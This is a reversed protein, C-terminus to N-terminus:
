AWFVVGLPVLCVAIGDHAVVITEVVEQIRAEFRMTGVMGVKLGFNRL